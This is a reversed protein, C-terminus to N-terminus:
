VTQASRGDGIKAAPPPPPALPTPRRLPRRRNPSGSGPPDTGVPRSRGALSCPRWCDYFLVNDRDNEVPRASTHLNESYSTVTLQELSKELSSAEWQPLGTRNGAQVHWNLKSHFHGQDLRKRIYFSWSAQLPQRNTLLSVTVSYTCINVTNQQKRVNYCFVVPDFACIIFHTGYRIMSIRVNSCLTHTHLSTCTPFLYNTM